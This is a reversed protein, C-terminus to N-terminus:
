CAATHAVPGAPWRRIDPWSRCGARCAVEQHGALEEVSDAFASMVAALGKQDHATSLLEAAVQFLRSEIKCLDIDRGKM